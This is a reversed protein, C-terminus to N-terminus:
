DIKMGLELEVVRAVGGGTESTEELVHTASKKVEEPAQGMAYSRTAAQLMPIDNLWDGIAVTEDPGYGHHEAIWTLATGKTGGSARAVLAWMGPVRRVQFMAVQAADALGLRIGDFTRSIQEGTGVAVCATIGDEDHWLEHEGLKDARRIDNSWTRVYALFVDGSPDHVIRDRAFLFAAAGHALISDRMTLAHAGRIAHHVLTTHDGARVLHSGDACAVPGKLGLREATPRTGSYLRGTVISVTVGKTLAAQLARVDREHPTGTHDLLTGDLDVAILRPRGGGAGAAASRHKV